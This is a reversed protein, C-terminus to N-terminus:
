NGELKDMRAEAEDVVLKEEMDKNSKSNIFGELCVSGEVSEEVPDTERGM